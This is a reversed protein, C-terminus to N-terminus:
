ACLREVPGNGQLPIDPLRIDSALIPRPNHIKSLAIQVDYLVTPWDVGSHRQHISSRMQTGYRVPRVPDRITGGIVHFVPSKAERMTLEQKKTVLAAAHNDIGIRYGTVEAIAFQHYLTPCRVRDQKGEM